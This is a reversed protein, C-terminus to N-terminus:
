KRKLKPANPVVRLSLTAVLNAGTNLINEIIVDGVKVPAEARIKSAQEVIKFSLDKPVSRDTKVPLLPISAGFIRVTTTVIREPHFIEKEAYKVGLKCENGEVSFIEQEGYEVTINCGQPCNICILERIM